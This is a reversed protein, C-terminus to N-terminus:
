IIINAAVDSLKNDELSLEELWCDKSRLSMSLHECGLRGINNNAMDIIKGNKTIENILKGAGKENIRNGSLKFIRLNPLKKIGESM